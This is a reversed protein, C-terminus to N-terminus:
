KVAAIMFMPTSAFNVKEQETWVRKWIATDASARMGLGALFELDWAPRDIQSLPMELAIDEMLDFDEGVNQDNMGLEESRARDTEYGARKDEDFLYHYWNSDFNILLGGPKLVRCWEAYAADPHPLNWTLNRSIVADFCCDPLELSEANMRRFNISGALNGANQRAEALMEKSLDVATVKYGLETLIVPFFGPGCGIDLVDVSSFEIGGFHDRLCSDIVTKWSGRSEGALEWKNVESYSGARGNWYEANREILNENGSM